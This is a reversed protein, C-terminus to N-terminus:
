RRCNVDSSEHKSLSWVDEMSLEGKRHAMRALPSLWSFTMCSFLGANDVPHQHRLLSFGFCSITLSQSLSALM